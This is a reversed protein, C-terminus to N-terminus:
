NSKQMKFRKPSMGRSTPVIEDSIVYQRVSVMYLRKEPEDQVHKTLINLNRKVKVKLEEETIAYGEHLIKLDSELIEYGWDIISPSIQEHVKGFFYILPYGLNKFLRPYKGTFVSQRNKEDWTKSVVECFFAGANDPANSIIKRIIIKGSLTLREDADLYLVWKSTANNLSENRAYSYDDKWNIKNIKAGFKRAIEITKDTSGTDTIIIEDAIDKISDLAGPLHNEENKVIMSVTLLREKYKGMSIFNNKTSEIQYIIKLLEIKKFVKYVEELINLAKDYNGMKIELEALNIILDLEKPNKRIDEVIMNKINQFNTEM